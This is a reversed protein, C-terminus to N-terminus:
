RLDRIRASPAGLIAQGARLIRLRRAHSERIMRVRVEAPYYEALAKPSAGAEFSENALLFDCLADPSGGVDAFVRGAFRDAKGEEERYLKSRQPRTLRSLDANPWTWPKHGIEHGLIGLLLESEREHEQLLDVGVFLEGERSIAANEGECLSLPFDDEDRGVLEAVEGTISRLKRMGRKLSPYRRWDVRRPPRKGFLLVMMPHPETRGTIFPARGGLSTSVSTSTQLGPGLVKM